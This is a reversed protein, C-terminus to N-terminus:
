KVCIEQGKLSHLSSHWLSPVQHPFAPITGARHLEGGPGRTCLQIDAVHKRLEQIEAYHFEHHITMIPQKGEQGPLEMPAPTLTELAARPVCYTKLAWM